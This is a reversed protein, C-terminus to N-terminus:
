GDRRPQFEFSLLRIWSKWTNFVPEDKGDDLPITPLGKEKMRKLIEVLEGSCDKYEGLKEALELHIPVWTFEGNKLELFEQYSKLAARCHGKLLYSSPLEPPLWDSKDSLNTQENAIITFSMSEQQQIWM